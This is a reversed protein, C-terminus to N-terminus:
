FRRNGGLSYRARLLPEAYQDRIEQPVSPDRLAELGSGLTQAPDQQMLGIRRSVADGPPPLQTDVGLGPAQPEARPVSAAGFEAVPQSKAQELRDSIGTAPTGGVNKGMQYADIARGVAPNSSKLLAAGAGAIGGSAAGMLIDMGKGGGSKPSYIKVPM